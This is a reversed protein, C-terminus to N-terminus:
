AYTVISRIIYKDDQSMRYAKAVAEKVDEFTEIILEGDDLFSLEIRTTM